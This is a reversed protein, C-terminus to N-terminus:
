RVTAPSQPLARLSSRASVAVRPSLYRFAALASGTKPNVAAFPASAVTNAAAAAPSAEDVPESVAEPAGFGSLGAGRTSAFVRQPGSPDNGRTGSRGM